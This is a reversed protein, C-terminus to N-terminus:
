LRLALSREKNHRKGQQRHQSPQGNPLRRDSTQRRNHVANRRAKSSTRRTSNARKPRQRYPLSDAGNGPQLILLRRRKWSAGEAREQLPPMEDCFRPFCKAAPPAARTDPRPHPAPATGPQPTARGAQLRPEGRAIRPGAPTDRHRVRLAAARYAPRRMAPLSSRTSAPMNGATGRRRPSVSSQRFSIIQHHLKGGGHRATQPQQERPQHGRQGHRQGGLENRFM